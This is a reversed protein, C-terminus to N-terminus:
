MLEEFGETSYEKGNRKAELADLLASYNQPTIKYFVAIILTSVLMFAAPIITETMNIVNIVHDTQQAAAADYGSWSLLYGVLATGIATAVGMALTFVGICAAVKSDGTKFENLEGVDYVMAYGVILAISNTIGYAVAMVLGDAFGSPGKVEVITALVMFLCMAVILTRKKGLKGSIWNAPVVMILTVVLSIAFYTSSEAETLGLSYVGCYILNGTVLTNGIFYFLSWLTIGVCSKVKLVSLYSSFFNGKEARQVELASEEEIKEKGRTTRWAIFGFVLTPIACSTIVALTWSVSESSGGSAFGEQVYMVLTGGILVGVYLMVTCLSRIKTRSDYDVTLEAGLSDYPVLYTYYIVYFLIGVVAYYAVTAGGLDVKTYLLIMLVAMPLITAIMIPRRRGYKSKFNDSIYGIVVCWVAAVFIGVGSITGAAAASVGAITTLFYILYFTWLGEGIRVISGVSYGITTGMNGKQKKKEKSM